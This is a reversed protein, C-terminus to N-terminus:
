TVSEMLPLSLSAVTSSTDVIPNTLKDLAQKVSVRVGSVLQNERAKACGQM